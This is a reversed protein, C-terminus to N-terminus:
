HHVHVHLANVSRAPLEDGWIGDISLGHRAIAEYGYHSCSPYFRCSRPLLPSVVLRYAHLLVRMAVAVGSRREIEPGAYSGSHKPSSALQKIM